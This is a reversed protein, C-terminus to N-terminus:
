TGPVYKQLILTLSMTIAVFIALMEFGSIAILLGDLLSFSAILISVVLGVRGPKESRLIYISSAIVLTLLTLMIWVVYSSLVEAIGYFIPTVLFLVPWYKDVRDLTEQKALFTLGITWLFVIIAGVMLEINLVSSYMAGATIYLMGRCMGMIYPSFPNGKHKWDYFLILLCLCLASINRNLSIIGKDKETPLEPSLFLILLGLLMLLGGWITVSFISAQGSPIPRYPREKTDLIHDFADNLFMGAIYLLSMSVILLFIRQDFLLNGSLLAGAICNTWVTPLNSVRGLRFAVMLNM